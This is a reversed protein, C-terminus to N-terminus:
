KACYRGGLYRTVYKNSTLDDLQEWVAFLARPSNVITGLAARVHAAEEETLTLVIVPEEVTTVVEKKQTKREAKAM